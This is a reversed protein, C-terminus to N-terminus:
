CRRCRRRAALDGAVALDADHAVADDDGLVLDGREAAELVVDLFHGFAVLAADGQGLERVHLLAVDVLGEAHFLVSLSSREWPPGIEARLRAVSIRGGQYGGKSLIQHRVACEGSPECVRSALNGQM